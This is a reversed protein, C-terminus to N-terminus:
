RRLAAYTGQHSAGVVSGCAITAPVTVRARGHRELTAVFRLWPGPAPLTATATFDGEVPALFDMASRQIVVGSEIGRERLGLHVAGWGALIALASMSGGFATGRHNLNPTLPAALRLSAGDWHAAAAGLGRTVPIHEHLYATIEDLTM